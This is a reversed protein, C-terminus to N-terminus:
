QNTGQNNTEGPAQNEPQQRDPAAQESPTPQEKEPAPKVPQVPEQAPAPTVSPTPKPAPTPAPQNQAPAEPKEEETEKYEFGVGNVAKDTKALKYVKVQSKQDTKQDSKQDEALDSEVLKVDLWIFNQSPVRQIVESIKVTENQDEPNLIIYNNNDVAAWAAEETGSMAAIIKKVSSPVQDEDVETFGINSESPILKAQQAPPAPKQQASCGFVALALLVTLLTFLKKM